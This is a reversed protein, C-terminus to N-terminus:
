PAGFGAAGLIARGRDSLVLDVWKGALGPTDTGALVAVPYANTASEPASVDIARVAEGAATADTAYVLGADAEGLEVKTLVAKVDVEASAPDRSIGTADLVARALAGCPAAQVCVVYAVNAHDLDALESIGAPNEPPVVLTLRNTAFVRPDTATNGEAAVARMTRRDATALVDAPAGQNVQEALLASSDFALRVSVGDHEAEFEDAIREFSETLSAAALVTLTRGRDAGDACGAVTATLALALLAPLLRM